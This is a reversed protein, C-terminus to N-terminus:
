FEFRLTVLLSHARFEASTENIPVLIERRSGDDRYRVVAIDGAETRIEGADTYRYSLDLHIGERVPIAIGATLLWTFNRGGGGPITTFPVEGSHGRRLYGNPNDPDPFRQVYGSLRYGTVGAGAGVFPLAAYGPVVEWGPFDHLGAILLQWADLEAESPQRKGANRYNTNGGYDLARALGAELQVRLGSPTRVGAAVYAQMGPDIAGADFRDTSGYLAAYGFDNGDVFRIDRSRGMGMGVSLYPIHGASYTRGSILDAASGDSAMATQGPITLSWVTVLLSLAAPRIKVAKFQCM